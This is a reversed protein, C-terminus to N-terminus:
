AEPFHKRLCADCIGHSFSADSHKSIYEELRNWYGDDDRIDKCYACTPLIGKLVKIESMAQELRQKELALKEGAAHLATVDQISGILYRRGRDDIFRRKSTIITRTLGGVTLEEQRQDAVGTDLVARDVRLFHEREPGPVSDALTSGIVDEEDLDFLEYFAVNALIVRHEDDKIFVPEVLHDILEKAAPHGIILGGLREDQANAVPGSSDDCASDTM